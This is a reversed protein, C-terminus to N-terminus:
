VGALVGATVLKEVQHSDFSFPPFVLFFFFLKIRYYGTHPHDCDRGGRDEQLAIGLM